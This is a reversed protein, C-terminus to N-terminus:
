LVRQLDVTNPDVRQTNDGFGGMRGRRLSMWEQKSLLGNWYAWYGVEDERGTYTM